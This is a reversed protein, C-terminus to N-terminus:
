EKGHAMRVLGAADLILGVRGDPMIAGGAIGTQDGLGEGLPKIVTQQQGLLECILLGAREGGEDIIVVVAQSPDTEAGEVGLLEHMKVVPILGEETALMLGREVITSIESALPRVSRQISLVPIIYRESGIRCVMGDIIALTVPLRVSVTTGESEASTLTIRGRLQEVTKRVVDMGVGRGSVDTVKEATSFGPAYLLDFLQEDSPAEDAGIMGLSRAKALIKPRDLGRGDDRVEINIAGGAHFAHLEVRAAAPKGATIRQEPTEIGHDVANRLAHILPDQMADVVSKDLETDEGSTIFEVQKGAKHAVDRVLRAMRRFTARMPVMRLSTAMHQLERTIKDLRELQGAVAIEDEDARVAASAMSEAIVLEGIADLLADLRAEDMRVTGARASDLAAKSATAVGDEPAAPAASTSVIETASLTSPETGPAVEAVMQRMQDVASFLAQISKADVATRETRATALMSESAHAHASIADLALFGAMGKITHFARFVADIAETDSPDSELALLQQDADDMHEIARITFDRLLEEDGSLPMAAAADVNKKTTTPKQSTELSRPAEAPAADGAKEASEPPAADEPKEAAPAASLEKQAAIMKHAEHRLAAFITELRSLAMDGDTAVARAAWLAKYAPHDGPLDDGFAAMVHEFRHVLEDISEEDEIDILIMAEAAADCLVILDHEM